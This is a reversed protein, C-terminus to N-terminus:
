PLPLSIIYNEVNKVTRERAIEAPYGVVVAGLALAGKSLGFHQRVIEQTFITSSIWASGLGEAALRIMLNEVAAGGAVMFMDRESGQRREDPYSHAGFDLNVLPLIMVPATRVIDGKSIRRSVEETEKKDIEKLDAIWASKMEDLLKNRIETHRVVDNRLVIFRFPESHHPAPALLADGIALNIIEQDVTKDSFKRITRRLSAAGRAGEKILDKVDLTNDKL